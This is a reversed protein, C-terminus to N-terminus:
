WLLNCYVSCSSLFMKISNPPIQQALKTNKFACLINDTYTYITAITPSTRRNTPRTIQDQCFCRHQCKWKTECVVWGSHLRVCSSAHSCVRLRTIRIDIIWPARLFLNYDLCECEPSYIFFNIWGSFRKHDQTHSQKYTIM